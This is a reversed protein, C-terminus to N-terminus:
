FAHYYRMIGRQILRCGVPNATTYHTVRFDYAYVISNNYFGFYLLFDLFIGNRYFAFVFLRVMNNVICYMIGIILTISYRSIPLIIAIINLEYLINDLLM